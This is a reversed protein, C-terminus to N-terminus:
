GDHLMSILRAQPRDQWKTPVPLIVDEVVKLGQKQYFPVASAQAILVLPKGKQAELAILHRLLRSGIGKRQRSPDVFFAMVEPKFANLM